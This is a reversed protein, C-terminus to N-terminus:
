LRERWYEYHTLGSGFGCTLWNRGSYVVWLSVRLQGSKRHICNYHNCSQGFWSTLKQISIYLGLLFRILVPETRRYQISFTWQKILVYRAVVHPHPNLKPTKIGKTFSTTPWSMFGQESHIFIYTIYNVKLLELKM